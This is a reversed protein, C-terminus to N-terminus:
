PKDAGAKTASPRLALPLDPSFGGMGSWLHPIQIAVDSRGSTFRRTEDSVYRELDSVTVMSPDYGTSPAKGRLGELLFWTFVGHGGGLGPDEWSSQNGSGSSFILRSPPMKMRAIDFLDQNFQATDGKGFGIAGSRCADIFMIVHGARSNMMLERIYKYQIGSFADNPEFGHDLLLIENPVIPNVRGHGSFFVIITDSERASTFAEAIANLISGRMARENVFPMIEWRAGSRETTRLFQEFDHADRHAFQLDYLGSYRSAVDTRPRAPLNKYDSIGIIIAIRRGPPLVPKQPERQETTAPERPGKDYNMDPAAARRGYASKVIEAYLRRHDRVAEEMMLDILSPVHPGTEGPGRQALVDLIRRRDAFSASKLSAVLKEGSMTYYVQGPDSQPPPSQRPEGNSKATAPDRLLEAIATEGNRLAYDLATAGRQDKMEVKAGAALLARVLREHGNKASLMLPTQRSQNTVNPDAGRALLDAAIKEATDQPHRLAQLLVPPDQGGVFNPNAGNELLLRVGDTQQKAVQYYLLTHGESDVDNLDIGRKALIGLLRADVYITPFLDRIDGGNQLIIDAVIEFNAHWQNTIAATLAIRAPKGEAGKTSANVGRALLWRISKLNGAGAAAGLPGSGSRITSAAKLSAGYGELLEALEFYSREVAIEYYYQLDDATHQGRELLLKMANINNLGIVPLFFEKPNESKGLIDRSIDGLDAIVAWLFPSINGRDKINVNANRALLERVTPAHRSRLAAILPTDGLANVENIRTPDAALLGIAEDSGNLLAKFLPTNQAGMSRFADSVDSGALTFASALLQPQAGCREMAGLDAPQACSRKTGLLDLPPAEEDDAADVAPSDDAPYPLTESMFSPYSFITDRAKFIGHPTNRFLLWAAPRQILNTDVVPLKRSEDPIYGSEVSIQEGNESGRNEWIINNKILGSYDRSVHIAPGKPASNYMITNNIIKAKGYALTIGGGGEYNASNGSYSNGFILNNRVVIQDASGEIAIGGGGCGNYGHNFAINDYIVNNEVIASTSGELAIAGGTTAKNGRLISNAITVNSNVAYVGGGRDEPSSDWIGNDALGDQIIAWEILSPEITNEIRIGKWRAGISTDDQRFIVPEGVGGRALLRGRVSFVYRGAFRVEVGPRVILQEGPKILLDGTVRYPGKEKTWVGSVAGSVATEAICPVSMSLLCIASLAIRGLISVM